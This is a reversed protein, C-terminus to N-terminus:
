KIEVLKQMLLNGVESKVDQANIGSSVMGCMLTAGKEISDYLRDDLYKGRVGLTVGELSYHERNGVKIATYQELAQMFMSMIAKEMVDDSPEFDLMISGQNDTKIKSDIVENINSIERDIWIDRVARQVGIISDSIRVPRDIYGGIVGQVGTPVKVADVEIEESYVGCLYKRGGISKILAYPKNCMKMVLNSVSDGIFEGTAYVLCEGINCAVYGNKRSITHKHCNYYENHYLEMYGSEIDAIYQAIDVSVKRSARTMGMFKNSKSNSEIDASLSVGDYRVNPGKVNELSNSNGLLVFGRFALNIMILEKATINTYVVAGDSDLSTAKSSLRNIYRKIHKHFESMTNSQSVVTCYRDQGIKVYNKNYVTGYSVVATDKICKELGTTYGGNSSVEIAGTISDVKIIKSECGINNCIAVLLKGM